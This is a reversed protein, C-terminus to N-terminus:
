VGHLTIVKNLDALTKLGNSDFALKPQFQDQVVINQRCSIAQAVEEDMDELESKSVVCITLHEPDAIWAPQDNIYL